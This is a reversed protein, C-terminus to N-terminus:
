DGEGCINTTRIPRTIIKLFWSVVKTLLMKLVMVSRLLDIQNKIRRTAPVAQKTLRRKKKLYKNSFGM